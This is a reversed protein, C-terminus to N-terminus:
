RHGGRRGHRPRKAVLLWGPPMDHPVSVAQNVKHILENESWPPQCRPNYEDRLIQFALDPPLAFGHILATTVAFTQSHGGQGAVAGPISALYRIARHVREIPSYAELDEEVVQSAKIPKAPPPFHGRMACVARWLREMADELIFAPVVTPRAELVEYHGGSPHLGPGVNSVQRSSRIEAIMEGTAPDRFQRSRQGVAIYFYHSLPNAPHGIVAGTHPLYEAALAVAEPCDLDVDILWGSPAGTLLGVNGMGRFQKAFESSPLRTNQWGRFIPAKEGLPIPIPVYGRSHYFRAAELRTPRERDPNSVTSTNQTM